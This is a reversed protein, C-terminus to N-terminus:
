LISKGRRKFELVDRRSPFTFYSGEEARNERYTVDGSKIREIAKIMVRAGRRKTRRILADLTEDPRIEEAEQIIIRGDDLKESMEHVTIGAQKEGHFMQWFNPLMGRYQPLMGHHINICGCAPISLLEKKFIVPAAVSIILDPKIARVKELFDPSNVRNERLVQVHCSKCLSQISYFKKWGSLTALNGLVRYSIFLLGIRIFNLPGYFDLMQRALSFPSKKGMAAALVVGAIEDRHQYASFFEEFFLRVYFPDDQTIFLIRFNRAPASEM